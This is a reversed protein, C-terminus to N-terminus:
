DAPHADVGLEAAMLGAVRVPWGFWVDRKQRALRFILAVRATPWSVRRRRQVEIRRLRAKLVENATRAQLYTM